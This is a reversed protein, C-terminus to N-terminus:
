NFISTVTALNLNAPISPQYFYVSVYTRVSNSIMSIHFNCLIELCKLIQHQDINLLNLVGIIFVPFHVFHVFNLLFKNLVFIAFIALFQEM